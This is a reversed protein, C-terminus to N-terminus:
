MLQVFVVGDENIRDVIVSLWLAGDKGKPRIYLREGEYVRHEPMAEYVELAHTGLKVTITITRTNFEYVGRQNGRKLFGDRYLSQLANQVQSVTFRGNMESFLYDANYMMTYGTGAADEMENIKDRVEGKITM